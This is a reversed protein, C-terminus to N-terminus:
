ESKPLPPPPPLFPLPSAFPSSPSLPSPFGASIPEASFYYTQCVIEKAARLAIEKGTQQSDEKKWLHAKVKEQLEKDQLVASDRRRTERDLSVSFGSCAHSQKVWCLFSCRPDYCGFGYVLVMAFGFLHFLLAETSTGALLAQEEAMLSAGAFTEM